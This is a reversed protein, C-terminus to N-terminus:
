QSVIIKENRREKKKKKMFLQLIIVLKIIIFVMVGGAGNDRIMITERRINVFNFLFHKESCRCREFLLDFAAVVMAVIDPGADVDDFFAAVVVNEEVNDEAEEEVVAGENEVVQV